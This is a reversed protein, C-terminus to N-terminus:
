IKEDDISRVMDVVEDITYYRKGSEADAMIKLILDIKSM